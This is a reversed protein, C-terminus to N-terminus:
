RILIFITRLHRFSIGKNIQNQIIIVKKILDQPFLFIELIKGFFIKMPYVMKLKQAISYISLPPLTSVSRKLIIEPIIMSIM